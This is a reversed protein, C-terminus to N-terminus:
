SIFVYLHLYSINLILNKSVKSSGLRLTLPLAGCNEHTFSHNALKSSLFEQGFYAYRVHPSLGSLLYAYSVIINCAHAIKFLSAHASTRLCDIANIRSWLISVPGSTDSLRYKTRFKVIASTFIRWWKVGDQLACPRKEYSFMPVFYRTCELINENCTFFNRVNKGLWFV